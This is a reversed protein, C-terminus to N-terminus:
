LAVIILNKVWPNKLHIMYSEPFSYFRMKGNAFIEILAPSVFQSLYRKEDFKVDVCSQNQM